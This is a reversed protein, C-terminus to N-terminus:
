PIALTVAGGATDLPPEALLEGAAPHARVALGAAQADVHAGTIAVGHDHDGAALGAPQERFQEPLGCGGWLM